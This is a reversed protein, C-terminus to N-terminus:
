ETTRPQRSWSSNIPRQDLEVAVDIRRLSVCSRPELDNEQEISDGWCINWGDSDTRRVWSSSQM